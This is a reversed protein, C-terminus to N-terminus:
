RGAIEDYSNTNVRQYQKSYTAVNKSKTEVFEAQIGQRKLELLDRCDTGCIHEILLHQIHFFKARFIYGM